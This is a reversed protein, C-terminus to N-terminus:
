NFEAFIASNTKAHTWAFYFYNTVLEPYDIKIQEFDGLTTTEDSIARALKTKHRAAALVKLRTLDIELKELNFDNESVGLWAFASSIIAGLFQPYTELADELSMPFTKSFKELPDKNLNFANESRWTDVSLVVGPDVESDGGSIVLKMPVSVLTLLEGSGVDLGKTKLGGYNQFNRNEM